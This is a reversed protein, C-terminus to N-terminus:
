RGPMVAYIPPPQHQMLRIQVPSTHTRLVVTEPPGLELYLTDWMGRAPHAAPMNLAEFNYWDTEVEPGEAVSFGMGVFVDELEDRTRQVVHVRGRRPVDVLETLDLREAQLLRARDATQLVEDREALLHEITRRAEAIEAGIRRRDDPELGGIARQARALAGRKGLFEAELRTLEETSTAAAAAASAQAVLGAVDVPAEAPGPADAAPTM